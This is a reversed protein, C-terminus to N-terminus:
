QAPTICRIKVKGISWGEKRKIANAVNDLESASLSSVKRNIDLGTWQKIQNAYQQPDNGDEPPAWRTVAGIITLSIYTSSTLNSKLARLGDEETAFVAFGGARGLATSWRRINGPNLNRWARSGSSREDSKEDSYYIFVSNSNPMTWVGTPSAGPAHELMGLVDILNIPDNKIFGYLNIGAEEEMSDRSPWRGISSAYFRYGYYHLESIEDFFKTSFRWINFNAYSGSSLVTNGFMDYDYHAVIANNNDLLESVNGNSDFTFHKVGSYTGSMEKMALLGGVGGTGHLDGSLDIGWTHTRWLVNNVLTNFVAILNWGDYLFKEDTNLIWTSGDYSFTEKRVRRSQADYTNRQRKDGIVPIIPEVFILRNEADWVYRVGTGTATMNGDADYSPTINDITIYANLSNATYSTTGTNDTYSVRNGVDDYAFNRNYTPITANNIGTVENKANYTFINVSTTTFATGSQQRQTRQGLSNVTYDYKSVTSTGVKNEISILINRHPEYTNTVTHVPGTVSARLNSNALYGYTYTGDSDTVNNLRGASDYGYTVVHDSDPDSATGLLFGAIRGPVKGRGTGEYIRTLIRNRFFGSQQEQNLQLAANYTFIHTGTADTVAAQAGFRNYGITVDPTNDSYEIEDLDGATNYSYITVLPLNSETRAWTRSAQRGAPTYTYSPGTSDAYRKQILGGRQSDYNWTTVAVGADTTADQWTTLTKLRGQLDYTYEIPYTQSGSTKKLLNNHLHYENTTVSNDPHTVTLRNGFADYTYSTTNTGNNSTVSLVEDRDSYTQTV